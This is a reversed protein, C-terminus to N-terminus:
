VTEVPVVFIADPNDWFFSLNRRSTIADGVNPDDNDPSSACDITARTAPDVVVGCHGFHWTGNPRRKGGYVVGCGRVPAPIRKWRRQPGTADAVIADTGWWIREGKANRVERDHKDVGASWCLFNSCDSARKAVTGDKLRKPAWPVSSSARNTGGGLYYDVPTQDATEARTAIQEPTLTM